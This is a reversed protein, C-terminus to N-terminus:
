RADPDTTAAAGGEPTPSLLMVVVVAAAGSTSGNGVEVAVGALTRPSVAVGAADGPSEPTIVKSSGALALRLVLAVRALLSLTPVAFSLAAGSVEGVGAALRLSWVRRWCCGVGVGASALAVGGVGM